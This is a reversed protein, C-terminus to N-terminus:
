GEYVSVQVAGPADDAHVDVEGDDRRSYRIAIDGAATRVVYGGADAPGYIEVSLPDLAREGVHQQVPGLPLVSEGRVFLPLVELPAAVDHWRGGPLPQKTWFDFWTGHPLYVRRADSDDLVPAVLLRDGFLYQDDVTWTTPDDQFDLVLPRVLPLSTEGCRQAETWLYPLLRYRLEAYRRFIAEADPGYEWPERPPTGHARVHSSFFGLQAWRVYLRPDPVGSFGGIDHSYFPFGSLGFSLMARLVCPLDEYRAVGDGSWHVPYRQSGAWAARAWLVAEGEGRATVSADWVARGYLLPYANHMAASDGTPM